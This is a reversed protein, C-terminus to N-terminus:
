AVTALYINVHSCAAPPPCLSTEMLQHQAKHEMKWNEKGIVIVKWDVVNCSNFVCPKIKLSGISSTQRSFAM